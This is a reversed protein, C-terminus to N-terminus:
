LILYFVANVLLFPHSVNPIFSVNDLSRMVSLNLFKPLNRGLMLWEVIIEMDAKIKIRKTANVILIKGNRQSIGCPV